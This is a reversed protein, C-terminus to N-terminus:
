SDRPSPSTYLLCPNASVFELNITSDKLSEGRGYERGASVIDAALKGAADAALTINLFGPGAVEAKDIGDVGSLIQALDTALERPQLGAKKATQLAVNTAWDGHDRSKPREVVLKAPVEVNTGHTENYASIAQEIALKLEEPTM